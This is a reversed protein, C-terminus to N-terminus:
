RAPYVILLNQLMWFTLLADGGMLHRGHEQPFFFNPVSESTALLALSMVLLMANERYWNGSEPLDKRFRSVPHAVYAIYQLKPSSFGSIQTDGSFCKKEFYWFDAHIFDQFITNELGFEM